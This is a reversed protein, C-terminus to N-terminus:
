AAREEGAADAAVFRLDSLGAEESLTALPETLRSTIWDVHFGSSVQVTLVGDQLSLARAQVLWTNWTAPSMRPRLAAAIREWCQRAAPEPSNAGSSEAQRQREAELTALRLAEVARHQRDDAAARQRSIWAGIAQRFQAVTLSSVRRQLKATLEDLEVQYIGVLDDGTPREAEPEEFIRAALKGLQARNGPTLDRASWGAAHCLAAFAARVDILPADLDARSTAAGGGVGADAPTTDELQNLSKVAPISPRASECSQAEPNVHGATRKRVVLGESECSQAASDATGELDSGLEDASVAAPEDAAPAQGASDLWAVFASEIRVPDFCYFTRKPMGQRRTEIIRMQLLRARAARVAYVSTRFLKVWEEDTRAFWGDGGIRGSSFLGEDLMLSAYLDGTWDLFPLRVVLTSDRGALAAIARGPAVFPNSM